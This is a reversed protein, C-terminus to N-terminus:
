RAISLFFTTGRDPKSDVWVRGKHREAIEKVIALGLGSGEVGESTEHRQFATFIKEPDALKLGVGNDQVSLIHYRDNAEYGLTIESLKEGGYKLANDVLNRLARLIYLGDAQIEGINKPETWKIQRLELQEAFEDKILQIIEKLDISKINLPAEKTVIYANIKKLLTAIQESARMIQDCYKRGRDDLLDGYHKKLLNSVGYIGIAPNKLDHIVSYAFIKIKEAGKELAEEILRREKIEQQLKLNARRLEVTREEIVKELQEKHERLALEAQRRETIDLMVGELFLPKGAADKVIWAEDRFWVVRGDRALMRYEASFPNGTAHSRALEALVRERDDPHLQKQWIDPDAQYDAPSLGLIAEVQPSVYTTTSSPDLEAIYTIAPIHEVLTRYKIESQRLNEEAQLREAIRGALRAVANLLQREEILFPGEDADPRAELCCIELRGAPKGQVYLDSAISWPSKCFNSTKFEKKGLLLRAAIIQSHQCASPLFEVIQQLVENLSLGPREILETINLLCNLEKLRETLEHTQRALTAEARQREALNDLFHSLKAEKARPSLFEGPPLYYVNNLIEKGVIVKSHTALIDMLLMPDFQRRDYQCIALCCSGPFFDNLKAEYEVLRESGLYGKLAWTMEGTLRLAPYGETLAQEAQLRLRALTADPDFLGDKLYFSAADLVKLQGRELYSEPKLGYKKLYGLIIKSKHQDTLYVVQEGAALGLALYPTMVAFHEAESQFFFCLHDGPKLDEM